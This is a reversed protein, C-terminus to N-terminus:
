AMGNCREANSLWATASSLRDYSHVATARIQRAKSHGQWESSHWARAADEGGTTYQNPFSTNFHGTQLTFNLGEFITVRNM